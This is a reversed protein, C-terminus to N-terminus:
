EDHKVFRKDLAEFFENSTDKRRKQSEEFEYNKQARQVRQVRIMVSDMEKKKSLLRNYRFYILLNVLFNVAEVGIYYIVIALIAPLIWFFLLFAISALASHSFINDGALVLAVIEFTVGYLACGIVSVSIKNDTRVNFVRKLQEEIREYGINLEAMTQDAVMEDEGEIYFQLDKGSVGLDELTPVDAQPYQEQFREIKEINSWFSNHHSYTYNIVEEPTNRHYWRPKWKNLVYYPIGDKLGKYTNEIM